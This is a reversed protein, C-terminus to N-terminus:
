FDKYSNNCKLREYGVRDGLFGIGLIGAVVELDVRLNELRARAEVMVVGGTKVCRGRDGAVERLRGDKIIIHVRRQVARLIVM